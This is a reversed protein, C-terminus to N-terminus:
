PTTASSAIASRLPLPGGATEIRTKRTFDCYAFGLGWVSGRFTRESTKNLNFCPEIPLGKVTACVSEGKVRLTNAPLSAFRVAGQGRFQIQGAVSGDAYVRGAGKTGEFCTFSFLKGVVFKRAEEAKMEGAFASTSALLGAVLVTSRLM